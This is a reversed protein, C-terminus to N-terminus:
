QPAKQESVNSRGTRTKNKERAVCTDYEIRIIQKKNRISQYNDMGIKIRWKNNTAIMPMSDFYLIARSARLLCYGTVVCHVYIYTTVYAVVKILELPFAM